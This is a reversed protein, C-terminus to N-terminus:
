AMEGGINMLEDVVLESKGLTDEIYAVFRAIHDMGTSVGVRDTVVPQSTMDVIVRSEIINDMTSVLDRTFVENDPSVKITAVAPARLGQLVGQIDRDHDATYPTLDVKYFKFAHPNEIWQVEHTDTDIFLVNHTYKYADESFNQGTLNGLNIVGPAIVSGNHLHGNIFLKCNSQIEDVSFGSTSVFQGMQIGKIDNHSFIIINEAGEIGKLNDLYDKLSKRDKELIYPLGVLRTDTSRLPLVTPETITYSQRCLDFIKSSSFEMDSRGMEHNGALFYHYCQSWVIEGLATIEESNLQSTDFFDGLCIVADCFRDEALDEVWQISKILNELRTSYKTGRSRVISSTVSWHPDAYVLLKM